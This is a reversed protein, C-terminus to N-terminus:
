FSTYSKYKPAFIVFLCTLTILNFKLTQIKGLIGGNITAFCKFSSDPRQIIGIGIVDFDVFWDPEGFNLDIKNKGGEIDIWMKRKRMIGISNKVNFGLM